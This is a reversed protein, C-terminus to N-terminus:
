SIGAIVTNEAEQQATKLRHIEAKIKQYGAPTLPEEQGVKELVEITDCITEFMTFYLQKYDEM